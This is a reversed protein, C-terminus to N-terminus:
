ISFNLFIYTFLMVGAIFRRKTKLIIIALIRGIEEGESRLADCWEKSQVGLELCIRLWYVTERAERLSIEMYRVFERKSSAAKAEEVNAGVATGARLLQDVVRRMGSHTSLTLALRAVDCAFRFTRDRLNQGPHEAM